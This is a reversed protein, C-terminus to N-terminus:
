MVDTDAWNLNINVENRFLSIFDVPTNNHIIVKFHYPSKLMGFYKLHRSIVANDSLMCAICDYSETRAKERIFLIISRLINKDASIIQIDTINLSLLGQIYKKRLVFYAIADVSGKKRVIYKEYVLMKNSDFRWNIYEANKIQCIGDPTQNRFINEYYNSLKEVKQFIFQGYDPKNSFFNMYVSFFVNGSIKSFLNNGIFGSFIKKFNIPLVYVPIKKVVEWGAKLHGPMVDNRIPYGITFDTKTKELAFKSVSYFMGMKRYGPHTMVDVVLGAKYETGMVSFRQPIIAYHGIIASQDRVLFIEAPGYYNNKFEWDWYDINEKEIEEGPFVIKRLGIIEQKYLDGEAQIIEWM